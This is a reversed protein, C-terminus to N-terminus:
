DRQGYPVRTAQNFHIAERALKWIRKFDAETLTVTLAATLCELKHAAEPTALGIIIKPKKM